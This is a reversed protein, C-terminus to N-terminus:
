EETKLNLLISQACGCGTYRVIEVGPELDDSQDNLDLYDETSINYFQIEIDKGHDNMYNSHYENLQNIFDKLLM